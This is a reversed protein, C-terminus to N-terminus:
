TNIILFEASSLEWSCEFRAGLYELAVSRLEAGVYAVQFSVNSQDVVVFAAAGKHEIPMILLMVGVMVDAEPLFKNFGVRALPLLAAHVRHVLDCQSTNWCILRGQFVVFDRLLLRRFTINVVFYGSHYKAGTPVGTVQVM